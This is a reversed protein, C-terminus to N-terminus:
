IQKQDAFVQYAHFYSPNRYYYNQIFRVSKCIFLLSSLGAMSCCNQLRWLCCDQESGSRDTTYKSWRVWRHFVNSFRRREKNKKMRRVHAEQACSPFPVKEDNELIKWRKQGHLHVPLCANSPQFVCCRDKEKLYQILEQEKSKLGLLEFPLVQRNLLKIVIRSTM